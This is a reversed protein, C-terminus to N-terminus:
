PVVSAGGERGLPARRVMVPHRLDSGELGADRVLGEGVKAVPEGAGAEGVGRGGHVPPVAAGDAGQALLHLIPAVGVVPARVLRPEVGVRLEERLVRPLNRSAPRAPRTGGEVTGTPSAWNAFSVTETRRIASRRCWLMTAHFTYSVPLWQAADEAGATQSASTRANTASTSPQPRTWPARLVLADEGVNTLTNVM